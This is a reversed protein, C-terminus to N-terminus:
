IFSVFIIIRPGKCPRQYCSLRSSDGPTVNARSDLDTIEDLSSTGIGLLTEFSVFAGRPFLALKQPM